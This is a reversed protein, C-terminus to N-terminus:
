VLAQFEPYLDRFDQGEQTCGPTSDKPYFYLVVYRGLLDTSQVTKDSTAAAAFAPSIDGIKPSSM